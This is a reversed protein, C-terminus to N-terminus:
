ADLGTQFNKWLGRASIVYEVGAADINHTCLDIDFFVPTIRQWQLTHATAIFTFSPVIVEDKLGLARTVIELGVTANCTAVCHKVGLERCIEQEFEQVYKGNNTFWRREIMDNLRAFLRERAPVNPVGVHIQRAFVRFGVLVALDAITRKVSM